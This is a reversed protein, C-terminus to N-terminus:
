AGPSVQIKRPRVSESKPLSITLVGHRMEAEVRDADVPTPLRLVRAFSGVPRERRHYATGEQEVDPREVKISLEDGTVSLEVQDSKVGPVELEVKLADDTEWVNLAPRGRGTLPWSVDGVSGLFGGILRDMERRLQHVPHRPGVYRLVM